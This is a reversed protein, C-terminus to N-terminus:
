LVVSAAGLNAGMQAPVVVGAFFLSGSVVAGVVAVLWWLRPYSATSAFIATNDPLLDSAGSAAPLLDGYSSDM